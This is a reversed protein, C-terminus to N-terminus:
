ILLNVNAFVFLEDTFASDIPVFVPALEERKLKDGCLNFIQM